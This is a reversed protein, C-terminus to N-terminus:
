VEENKIILSKLIIDPEIKYRVGEIIRILNDIEIDLAYFYSLMVVPPSTSFHINKSSSKFLM